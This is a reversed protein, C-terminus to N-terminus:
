HPGARKLFLPTGSKSANSYKHASWRKFLLSFDFTLHLGKTENGLYSAALQPDGPPLTYIEGISVKDGYKDLLKRVQNVIKLSKPRNRTFVKNRKFLLGLGMPNDRFKHDKVILNIVDFRFGDTGIDLWFKMIQKFETWVEENRWNLDPQQRFCSHYYYESTTADFQWASGGFINRWNNPRRGNRHKEWIYWDRKPNCTSSKSEQFWPHEISTHNLVMDMIVKIEHKHAEKVLKKYDSLRGFCPDICYYDAIDYGFDHQPSKYVPSLWIADVGLHKLYGIKNIIGKLDGIGDGNTDYFSRPYIHYIVATKWWETQKSM